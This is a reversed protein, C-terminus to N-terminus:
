KVMLAHTMRYKTQGNGQAEITVHWRGKLPLMIPAQYIGDGKPLLKITRDFTEHAPRTLHASVAIGVLGKDQADKLQVRLIGADKEHVIFVANSQWGLANQRHAANLTENYALGKRYADQTGLGPWSKFAFYIFVSNVAIIFGFFGLLMIFVRRGTLPARPSLPSIQVTM